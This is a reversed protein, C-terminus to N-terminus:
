LQEFIESNNGKSSPKLNEETVYQEMFLYQGQLATHYKLKSVTTLIYCFDGHLSVLQEKM